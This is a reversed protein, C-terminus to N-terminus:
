RGLLRLSNGHQDVAEGFFPNPVFTTDRGQIMTRNLQMVLQEIAKADPNEPLSTHDKAYVFRKELEDVLDFFSSHFTGDEAQYKGGRIDMLLDHEKERYTIIQEKELIDVGMLYLRVLHMAHKCLHAEDKKRNRANMNLEYDNVVNTIENVMSKLDRVPMHRVSFDIFTETERDPRQSPGTSLTYSSLAAGQPREKFARTVNEISDRIHEEKRSQPLRDRALANELRRFQAQAYGAFSRAARRSLFLKANDLLSQGLPSVYLYHEPLCGLMEIINPNCNMLLPVLKKLSYLTTDTATHVYQEFNSLGLLEEETNMVAGRVDVDSTEVNTGYAYSGGLCLFLTDRNRLVPENTLFDYAPDIMVMRTIEQITM